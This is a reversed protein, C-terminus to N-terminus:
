NGYIPGKSHALLLRKLESRLYRNLRGLKYYPVKGNSTLNRLTAGNIRLYNAAEETTLWQDIEETKLSGSKEESPLVEALNEGDSDIENKDSPHKPSKM